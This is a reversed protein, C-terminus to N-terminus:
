GFTKYYMKMNNAKHGPELVADDVHVFWIDIM